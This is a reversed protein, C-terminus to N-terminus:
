GGNAAVAKEVEALATDVAMKAKEVNGYGMRNSSTANLVARAKTLLDHTQNLKAVADTPAADARGAAYSGVVAIGIVAAAGAAKLVRM